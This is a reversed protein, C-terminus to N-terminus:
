FDLASPPPPPPLAATPQAPVAPISSSPVWAGFKSWKFWTGVGYMVPLVLYLGFGLCVTLVLTPLVLSVMVVATNGSTTPTEFELPVTAMSATIATLALTAVGYWHALPNASALHTLFLATLSASASVIVIVM